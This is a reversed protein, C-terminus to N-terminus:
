RSHILLKTKYLHNHQVIELVDFYSKAVLFYQGRESLLM